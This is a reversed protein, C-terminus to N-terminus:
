ALDNILLRYARAAVAPVVSNGLARLRDMRRATGDAVRRIAPEPAGSRIAVDWRDRETPGPPWPSREDSGQPESEHWRELRSENTHGVDALVSTSSSPTGRQNNSPNSPAQFPTRRLSNAMGKRDALIFLRQRKHTAGVEAATVLRAAIRYDMRELDRVVTWFGKRLHGPVNEFFGLAPRCEAMIRAVSPWLHRPDTLGRRKGAVSFPQCPYGATVCDVIGRWRRGNFSRVDNFVPAPDLLGDLMRRFLIDQCFPDAEVWGM